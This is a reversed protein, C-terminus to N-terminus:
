FKTRGCLEAAEIMDLLKPSKGVYVEVGEQIVTIYNKAKEAIKKLQTFNKATKTKIPKNNMGWTEIKFM